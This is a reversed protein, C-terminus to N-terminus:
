CHGIANQHNQGGEILDLVEFAHDLAHAAEPVVDQDDVVSRGIAGAIQGVPKGFGILPDPDQVARALKSEATGVFICKPDPHRIAGLEQDLHIRVARM